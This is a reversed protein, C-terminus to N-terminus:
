FFLQSLSLGFIRGSPARLRGASYAVRRLSLDDTDSMADGENLRSGLMLVSSAIRAKPEHCQESTILRVSSIPEHPYLPGVASM